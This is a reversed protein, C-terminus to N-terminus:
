VIVSPHLMYVLLQFCIHLGITSLSFVNVFILRTYYPGTWIAASEWFVDAELVLVAHLYCDEGCCSTVVLTRVLKKYIGGRSVLIRRFVDGGERLVCVFAYLLPPIVGRM